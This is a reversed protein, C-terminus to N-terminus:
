QKPDEFHVADDNASLGQNFHLLLLITFYALSFAILTTNLKIVFNFGILHSYNAKYSVRTFSDFM